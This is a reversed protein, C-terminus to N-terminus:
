TNHRRWAYPHGSFLDPRQVVYLTVTQLDIEIHNASSKWLFFRGKWGDASIEVIDSPPAVINSPISSFKSFNAFVSPVTTFVVEVM